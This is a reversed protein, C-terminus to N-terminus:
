IKRLAFALSQLHIFDRTSAQVATFHVYNEDGEAEDGGGCPRMSQGICAPSMKIKEHSSVSKRM